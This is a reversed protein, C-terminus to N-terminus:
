VPLTGGTDEGLSIGSATIKEELDKTVRKGLLDTDMSFKRTLIHKSAM